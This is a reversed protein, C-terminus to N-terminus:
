WFLTWINLSHASATETLFNKRAAIIVNSFPLFVGLILNFYKAPIEKRSTTNPDVSFSEDVDKQTIRQLYTSPVM